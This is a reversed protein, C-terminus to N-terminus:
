ALGVLPWSPQRLVGAGQQRRTGARVFKVPGGFLGVAGRDPGGFDEGDSVGVELDVNWKLVGSM